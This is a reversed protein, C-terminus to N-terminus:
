LLDAMGHARGLVANHDHESCQVRLSRERLGKPTPLQAELINIGDVTVIMGTIKLGDSCSPRATSADACTCIRVRFTVSCSMGRHLRDHIMMGM